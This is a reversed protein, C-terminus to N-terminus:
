WRAAAWPLVRAGARMGVVAAVQEVFQLAGCDAEAVGALAFRQLVDLGLPRFDKCGEVANGRDGPADVAANERNDLIGNGFAPLM